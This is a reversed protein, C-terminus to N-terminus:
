PRPAAPPCTGAGSSPRRRCVGNKGLCRLYFHPARLWSLHRRSIFSSRGMHVDPRRYNRGITVSEQRMVSSWTAAQPAAGAAQAQACPAGGLGPQPALRLAWCPRARQATRGVEAM